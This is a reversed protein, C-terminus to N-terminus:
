LERNLKLERILMLVFYKSNERNIFRLHICMRSHDRVIEVYDSVHGDLTWFAFSKKVSEQGM